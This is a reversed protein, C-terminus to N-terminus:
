GWGREKKLQDQDKLAAEMDALARKPDRPLRLNSPRGSPAGHVNEPETVALLLKRYRDIDSM